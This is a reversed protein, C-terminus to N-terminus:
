KRQKEILKYIPGVVNFDLLIADSGRKFFDHSQPNDGSFFGFDVETVPGGDMPLIWGVSQGAETRSLGLYDYAENLFIHGRSYLMDNCYNQAARISVVNYMPEPSWHTTGSDFWRAYISAGDEGVRKVQSIKHGKSTDELIEHTESGYRLEREKDPGFENLVRERYEDFGRQLVTYAAMLSTNRTTLIRHSGTLSGITLVGVVVAPGYLRTVSGAFKVYQIAVDKQYDKDSYKEHKGDRLEKITDLNEQTLDLTDELKLTARATLIATAIVGVIGAGFLITPSHKQALLISRGVKLSVSNPIHKMVNM